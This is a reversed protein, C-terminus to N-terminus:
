DPLPPQNLPMALGERAHRVARILLSEDPKGPVIAPGSKGGKLLAQRSDVALGGMANSAHCAFCNKALIPRIRMEFVEAADKQDAGFALAPASALLLFRWTMRQYDIGM